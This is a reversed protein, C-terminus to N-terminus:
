VFTKRKNGAEDTITDFTKIKVLKGLYRRYDAETKLPRNLGPSSVELTYKEAVVDEVDLIASLERSVSACDDLTIGGAKDIYLRLVMQRGEKTYELDVLEMDFSRLISEAIDTVKEVVTQKTMFLM